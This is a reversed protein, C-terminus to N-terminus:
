FRKRASVVTSMIGRPTGTNVRITHREGGGKKGGGKVVVVVESSRDLTFDQPTYPCAPVFISSINHPRLPNFLPPPPTRFFSVASRMARTANLTTRQRTGRANQKAFFACTRRSCFFCPRQPPCTVFLVLNRYQCECVTHRIRQRFLQVRTNITHSTVRRKNFM